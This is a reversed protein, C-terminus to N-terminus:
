VFTIWNISTINHSEIISMKTTILLMSNQSEIKFQHIAIQVFQYGFLIGDHCLCLCLIVKELYALPNFVHVPLEAKKQNVGKTPIPMIM